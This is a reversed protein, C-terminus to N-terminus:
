TEDVPLSLLGMPGQAFWITTSGQVQSWGTITAADLGRHQLRQDGAPAGGRRREV